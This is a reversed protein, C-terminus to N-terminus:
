AAAVAPEPIPAGDPEAEDVPRPLFASAGNVAVVCLALTLLTAAWVIGGDFYPRDLHLAIILPAGIGFNAGFMTVPFAGVLGLLGWRTSVRRWLQVALVTFLVV